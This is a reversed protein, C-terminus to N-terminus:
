SVKYIKEQWLFKCKVDYHMGCLCMYATYTYLHKYVFVSHVYICIVFVSTKHFLVRVMIYDLLFM